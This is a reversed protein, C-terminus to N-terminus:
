ADLEDIVPPNWGPHISWWHKACCTRRYADAAALPYRGGTCRSPKVPAPALTATM